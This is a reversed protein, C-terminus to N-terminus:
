IIVLQGLEGSALDLSPIAGHEAQAQATETLASGILAMSAVLLLAAILIPLRARGASQQHQTTTNIAM